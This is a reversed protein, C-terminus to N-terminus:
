KLKNYNFPKTSDFIRNVSIAERKNSTVKLTYITDSVSINADFLSKFTKSQSLLKSSDKVLLQELDSIKLNQIANKPLGKAKIIEEGKNTILGYVKPALFVAKTVTHELKMLGLEKGVLESPLPRDVVASDTDSYYLKFLPNNKFSSMKIRAYASIASAIAVNIDMQHISEIDTYLNDASDTPKFKNTNIILVIHNELYIM